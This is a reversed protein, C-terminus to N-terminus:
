HVGNHHRDNRHDHCYPGALHRVLHFPLLGPFLSILLGSPRRVAFFQVNSPWFWSTHLRRHRPTRVALRHWRRRGPDAARRPMAPREDCDPSLGHHLQPVYSRVLDLPLELEPVHVAVPAGCPPQQVVHPIQSAAYATGIDLQFGDELLGRVDHVLGEPYSLDRDAEPIRRVPFVSIRDHGAEPVISPLRMGIQFVGM